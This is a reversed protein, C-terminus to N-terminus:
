SGRARRRLLGAAIRAQRVLGRPDDWTLHRAAAALRGGQLLYVYADLDSLRQRRRLLAVLAPDRPEPLLRLMRRNVEAQHVSGSGSNSLSGARIRQVYGAEPVLHFRAGKAVAAFYLLLDEGVRVDTAYRLGHRDLVERRMIPQYFGFREEPTPSDPMDRLVIDALSLAGQHAMTAERFRRGLPAGSEFDVQELNDALLDAGGAEAAAVMRELREPRYLDDADLLAIWRGRAEAIGANRAASPGGNREQRFPRVRRDRRAWGQVAEWTGDPSADDVVIVEIDQLTQALASAIAEGVFGEARWAPM